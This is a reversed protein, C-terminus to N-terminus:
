TNRRVVRVTTVYKRLLYKLVVNINLLKSDKKGNKCIGVQICIEEKKKADILVIDVLERKTARWFEGIVDISVSTM